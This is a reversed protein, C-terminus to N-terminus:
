RGTISKLHAVNDAHCTNMGRPRRLKRKKVLKKPGDVLRDLHKRQIDAMKQKYREYATPQSM